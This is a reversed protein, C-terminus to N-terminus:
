TEEDSQWYFRIDPNIYGLKTEPNYLFSFSASAGSDREFVPCLIYGTEPIADEDLLHVVYGLNELANPSILTATPPPTNGTNQTPTTHTKM